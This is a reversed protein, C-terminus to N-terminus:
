AEFFYFEVVEICEGARSTRRWFHLCAAEITGVHLRKLAGSERANQFFNFCLDWSGERLWRRSRQSVSGSKTIRGVNKRSSSRGCAFHPRDNEIM